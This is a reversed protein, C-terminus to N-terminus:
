CDDAIEEACDLLRLGFEKNAFHGPLQIIQNLLDIILNMNIDVMPMRFYSLAFETQEHQFKTPIEFLRNYLNADLNMLRTLTRTSNIMPKVILKLNSGYSNILMAPGDVPYILTFYHMEFEDECHFYYIYGPVITAKIQQRNLDIYDKPQDLNNFLKMCLYSGFECCSIHHRAEDLDDVLNDNASYSVDDSHFYANYLVSLDLGYDRLFEYIALSSCDAM